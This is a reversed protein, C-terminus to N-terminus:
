IEACERPNGEWLLSVNPNMPDSRVEQTMHVDTESCDSNWETSGNGYIQLVQQYTAVINGQEKYVIGSEPSVDSSPWTLIFTGWVWCTTGYFVCRVM